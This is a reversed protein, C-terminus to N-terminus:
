HGASHPQVASRGAGLFRDHDAAFDAIAGEYDGRNGIDRWYGGFPLTQVAHDHELARLLLGPFDIREGPEILDIIEPEMAYVGMSVRYSM